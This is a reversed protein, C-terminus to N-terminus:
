TTTPITEADLFDMLDHFRMGGTTGISSPVHQSSVAFRATSALPHQSRNM